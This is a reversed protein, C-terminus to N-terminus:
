LGFSAWSGLRRLAACNAKEPTTAGGCHTVIANAAIAM